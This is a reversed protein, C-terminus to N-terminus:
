SSSEFFQRFSSVAFRLLVSEFFERLLVARFSKRLVSELPTHVARLLV